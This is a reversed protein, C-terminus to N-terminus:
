QEIGGLEWRGSVKARIRSYELAFILLACSLLYYALICVIGRTRSLVLFSLIPHCISDMNVTIHHCISSSCPLQYDTATCTKLSVSM